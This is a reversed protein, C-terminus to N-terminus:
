LYQTYLYFMKSVVAFLDYVNMIGLNSYFVIDLNFEFESASECGILCHESTNSSYNYYNAIQSNLMQESIFSRSGALTSRLSSTHNNHM